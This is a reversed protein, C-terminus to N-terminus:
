ECVLMGAGILAMGAGVLFMWIGVPRDELYAWALGAVASYWVLVGALELVNM